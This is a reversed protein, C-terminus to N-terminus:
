CWWWILQELNPSFSLTLETWVHLLILRQTPPIMEATIQLEVFSEALILSHLDYSQLANVTYIIYIFLYSLIIISLAITTDPFTRPHFSLSRPYRNRLNHSRITHHYLSFATPDFHDIRQRQREAPRRSGTTERCALSVGAGKSM